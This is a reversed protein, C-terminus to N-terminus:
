EAAERVTVPVELSGAGELYVTATFIDGVALEQTLAILMIHYGGPELWATGSAPVEISEVPQMAMVDNDMTTQHLEVTEAVDPAEAHVIRDATAGENHIELYVASIDVGPRAWADHISLPAAPEPMATPAACGALLFLFFLWGVARRARFLEHM